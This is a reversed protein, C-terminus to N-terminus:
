TEEGALGPIRALDRSRSFIKEKARIIGTYNL